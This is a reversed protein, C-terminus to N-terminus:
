ETEGEIIKIEEETLGYLKYVLQDIQRELEKVQAKKDENYPYDEDKTIELIKDVLDVIPKQESEPIKPIPLRELFAKKYRYGEEGLGGGAYFKRFFFSVPKSNLLGLLYKLNKGTMIFATAECYIGTNDYAFSPGRVIEQWVIKEKEFEPYYAINDQTEFWKNNTKKRHGPKGDQNLREGFSKLYEKLAPYEDINLNLAPFTGILWLGAWNYRWKEIDRGRLVPKIIEETRKREEETKCNALIKNRTETDIIFAENFGTLVGRYIKVDWEKLPTGIKEIKEKIALVRDEALTWASDSLKEQLITRKNNRIYDIEDDVDSGVNVFSVLHGKEPRSKLLIIINTDVTQEFVPYGSFDVIEIIKTKEKLFRRLKEGYKARMWKNSSIFCLVGNNRLIDYSKRYFYTYLDATSVFFDKYAKELEPKRDKIREQRVYPPNAIVIDFGGKEHFVESFYVKFDFEKLGNTIKYILEDIQRKYNQKQRPNTENFYKKKLEELKRFDEQNFLNKEVGLLSDGQVVKYDLNPLPKISYFDEEDVVLSLWFRLRCVEVAGPDIDVGYLSNEICHRKLDYTNVERGLYVSLLQRLKVIEHMMGVLFAGSGVAPDCVKIDALLKDILEANQIISEPIRHEYKTEKQEGRKIRERKEFATREHELFLDAYRVFKELDERKVKGALETELYNILSEQCMYHVIERPTYYVGYEKNFKTEDGKKGSKLVKVYEDFNDPRIANLKEYIKGLLEPDLAVEKELPEEENVTFNYRDFVDLIGDGIDGEKTKNKNSFLENPLLIDVNVWDFNNIPDFLGGNLFPIKCNFRSYYHDDASRDTRLAEYFLPELIDNYFNDYKGYEGNFLRRIFDKPGSGWSAGRKVGFWGKKQLFYLFVIQGLLKKAFDVTNINKNEFEQRVKPNTQVIKDLELKTRIFLDRYKRFFEETVVEVNFAEELDELTPYKDSELLPLFRSQATHSKENKGVLFSFRKAPTFEEKVRGGVFKYDMKVLSFRWDEPSSVFAVLAAYKKSDTGLKGQLYEAVFNRQATRARYLSTEKKLYVILIDIKRGDEDEYRGIRKWSSIFDLYRETIGQIGSRPELAKSRDYTKLLNAIFKIFKEEDFPNEFTEIVLSKAQERNM